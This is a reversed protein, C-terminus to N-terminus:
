CFAMAAFYELKQKRKEWDPQCRLLLAFFYRSHDPHVLHCLEHTIAYEICSPPMKVLDPNLTITGTPTCSGWRRSMRRLRMKSPPLRYRAFNKRCKEMRDEFVKRAMRLYWREVMKRIHGQKTPTRSQVLLYGNEFSVNYRGSKIVRLRFARGMLYHTEGSVFSRPLQLPQYRAFLDIQRAIWRRRRRTRLIVDAVNAKSPATVVVRQDPFVTIRFQLIRSRLLWVLFDRQGYRIVFSETHASMASVGQVQDAGCGLM